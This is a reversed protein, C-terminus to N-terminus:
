RREHGSLAPDAPRRQEQLLELKAGTGRTVVECYAVPGPKPAEDLRRSDFTAAPTSHRVPPALYQDGPRADLRHVRVGDDNDFSALGVGQEARAAWL